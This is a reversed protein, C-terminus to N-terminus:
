RTASVLERPQVPEEEDLATIDLCDRVQGRAVAADPVHAPRDYSCICPGGAVCGSCCFAVGVHVTPRGEIVIECNACTFASRTAPRTYTETAM